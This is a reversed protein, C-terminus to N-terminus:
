IYLVTIYKRGKFKPTQGQYRNFLSSNLIKIFPSGFDCVKSLFATNKDTM